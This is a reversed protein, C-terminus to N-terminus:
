EKNREFEGVCLIVAFGEALAVHLKKNVITESEGFKIRRDSHGVLVYEAGISKLMPLSIEGTFAGTDEYFFDQAGWQFRPFKKALEELFAAPPLLVTKLNGSSPAVIGGALMEAERMTSPNLKWNGAILKM